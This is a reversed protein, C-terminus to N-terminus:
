CSFLAEDVPHARSPIGPFPRAHSAKLPVILSLYPFWHMPWKRNQQGQAKETGCHTAMMRMPHAIAVQPRNAM